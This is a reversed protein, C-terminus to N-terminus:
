GSFRGARHDGGRVTGDDGGRGIGARGLNGKRFEDPVSRGRHNKSVCVISNNGFVFDYAEGTVKSGWDGSNVGRGSEGVM